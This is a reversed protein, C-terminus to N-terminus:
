QARCVAMSRTFEKIWALHKPNAQKKGGESRMVSWYRAAGKWHSGVRGTIQGDQRVLTSLITVGCILNTQADYLDEARNLKCRYLDRDGPFSLQLLGQSVVLPTNSGHQHFSETFSQSPDFRGDSEASAISSVLGAWFHRRDAQTLGAYRPCFDTADSPLSQPLSTAEVARTVQASWEAGARERRWALDDSPSLAPTSMAVWCWALSLTCSIQLMRMAALKLLHRLDRRHPLGSHRGPHDKLV